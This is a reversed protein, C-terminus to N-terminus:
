HKRSKLFLAILIIFLLLGGLVIYQHPFKLLPEEKPKMTTPQVYVNTDARAEMIQEKLMKYDFRWYEIRPFYKRFNPIKYKKKTMKAKVSKLDELIHKDWKNYHRGLSYAIYAQTMSLHGEIIHGMEACSNAIIPDDEYKYSIIKQLAFELNELPHIVAEYFEPSEKDLSNYSSDVDWNLVRNTKYWKNNKQQELKAQFIKKMFFITSHEMIMPSDEKIKKLGGKFDDNLYYIMLEDYWFEEEKGFDTNLQDFYYQSLAKNGTRLSIQAFRLSDHRSWSNRPRAELSDLALKLSDNSFGRKFTHLKFYPTYENRYLSHIYEITDKQARVQTTFLIPFLILISKILLRLHM